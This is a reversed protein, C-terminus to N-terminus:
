AAAGAFTRWTQGDHVIPEGLTTDFYILGRSAVYPPHVTHNTTTRSSTPGSLSLKTWGNNALVDADMDPVDRAEGPRGAYVRGKVIIRQSVVSTPPLLRVNLMTLGDV